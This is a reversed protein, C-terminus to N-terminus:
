DQPTQGHGAGSVMRSVLGHDGTLEAWVVGGVHLVIYGIIFYMTM